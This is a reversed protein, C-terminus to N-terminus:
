RFVVERQFLPGHSETLHSVNSTAKWDPFSKEFRAFHSFDATGSPPPVGLLQRFIPPRNTM